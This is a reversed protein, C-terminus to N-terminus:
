VSYGKVKDAVRRLPADENVVEYARLDKALFNYLTSLIKFERSDYEINSKRKCATAISVRLYFMSIRIQLERVLVM